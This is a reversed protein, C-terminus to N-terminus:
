QCIRLEVRHRPNLKGEQDPLVMRFVGDDESLPGNVTAYAVLTDDKNVLDPDYNVTFGDEAMAKVASVSKPDFGADDLLASLKVGLYSVELFEVQHTQMGELDETVYTKEVEGDTVVLRSEGSAPADDSCSIISFSIVFLILLRLRM